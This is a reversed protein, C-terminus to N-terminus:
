HRHCGGATYFRFPVVGGELAANVADQQYQLSPDFKPKM